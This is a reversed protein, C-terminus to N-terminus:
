KPDRNGLRGVGGIYSVDQLQVRINDPDTFYLEKTDGRLRINASLGRSVLKKLVADADFNDLAFCVHNIGTAQAQAPYIGLFGTGAKLNVGPPQSTLVPMGFLGQYFDLSKQVNQVFVTVHNLQRVTGIAPEAATAAPAAILLVTLAGLLERRTMDGNDYRALLQDLRENM